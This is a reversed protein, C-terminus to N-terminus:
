CGQGRRFPFRATAGRGSERRTRQAVHSCAAAWLPCPTSGLSRRLMQVVAPPHPQLQRHEVGTPVATWAVQRKWDLLTARFLHLPLSTVGALVSAWIALQKREMRVESYHLQYDAGVRLM